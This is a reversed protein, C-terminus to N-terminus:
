TMRTKHHPFRSIDSSEVHISDGNSAKNSHTEDFDM